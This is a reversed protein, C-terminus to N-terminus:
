KVFRGSSDRKGPARGRSKNWMDLVNERQTGMWLNNVHHLKDLPLTEDKHCVCLEEKFDKLFYRAVLRHVNFSKGKIIYRHVCPRKENMKLFGGKTGMGPERYLKGDEYLIYEPHDLLRVTRM